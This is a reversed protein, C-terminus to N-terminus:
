QSDMRNILEVLQEGAPSRPNALGLCEHAKKKHHEIETMIYLVVGSNEIIKYAELSAQPDHSAEHLCEKLRKHTPKPSVDLAYVVPLSHFIGNGKEPLSAASLGHLDDLDDLVQILVGLHNGFFGFNDLKNKDAIALRAGSRCALSFFTGSKSEAIKWYQELSPESITMDQYQGGCMRIFSTHFDEIMEGACPSIEERLYLRHLSRSAAFFLGTAANIAAAFGYRAWWADPEDQDEVSDMLDAALYFMLWAAAIDDAWHPDGGAAQCCLGPLLAWRSSPRSAAEGEQRESSLALRAFEVYEPWAGTDSWSLEIRQWISKLLDNEL